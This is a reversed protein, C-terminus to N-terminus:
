CSTPRYRGDSGTCPSCSPLGKWTASPSGSSPRCTPTMAPFLDLGKFALTHLIELAAVGLSAIGVIVLFGDSVWRRANWALVFISGLVVIRITEVLTHFLLYNYRASLHLLACFVVLGGVHGLGLLPTAKGPAAHDLNLAIM